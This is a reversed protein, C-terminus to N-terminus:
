VVLMAHPPASLPRVNPVYRRTRACFGSLRKQLRGTSRPRCLPRAAPRSRHEAARRRLRSCRRGIGARQPSGSPPPFGLPYGLVTLDGGNAAKGAATTTRRRLAPLVACFPSSLLPTIFLAFAACLYPRCCRCAYGHRCWICYIQEHGNARRPRTCQHRDYARMADCLLLLSMVPTHVLRYTLVAVVVTTFHRVRISRPRFFFFFETYSFYKYLVVSRKTNQAEKNKSRRRRAAAARTRAGHPRGHPCPFRAPPPNEAPAVPMPCTHLPFSRTGTACPRRTGHPRAACPHPYPSPHPYGAPSPCQLPSFARPLPRRLDRTGRPRAVCPHPYALPPALPAPPSYARDVIKATPQTTVPSPHQPSLFARTHTYFRTRTGHPYARPLNRTFQPYFLPPHPYVVPLFLGATRTFHPYRAGCACFVLSSLAIPAAPLPCPPCPCACPHASTGM